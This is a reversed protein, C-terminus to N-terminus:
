FIKNIISFDNICKEKIMLKLQKKNNKWINMIKKYSSSPEMRFVIFNNYHYKYFDYHFLKIKSKIKYIDYDWLFKLKSNLQILSIILSSMSIVINYANILLSLDEKLSKQKYLINHYKNILKIINPNSNDESIIYVKQFKFNNLIMEYFCFPPQAYDKHPINKKFIDGSRIHIFLYYKSIRFKPM